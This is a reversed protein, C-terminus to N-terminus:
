CSTLGIGTYTHTQLKCMGYVNLKYTEVKIDAMSCDGVLLGYRIADMIKSSEIELKTAFEVTDLKGARRYNEDLVDENGRGFSAPACAATLLELDSQSANALNM